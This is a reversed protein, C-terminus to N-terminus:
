EGIVKVDLRCDYVYEDGHASINVRLKWDGNMDLNKHMTKNYEAIVTLLKNYEEKTVYLVDEKYKEYRYTEEERYEMLRVIVM